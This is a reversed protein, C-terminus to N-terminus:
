SLRILSCVLGGVFLDPRDDRESSARNTRRQGALQDTLRDVPTM